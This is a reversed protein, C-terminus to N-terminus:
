PKAKQIKVLLGDIANPLQSTLVWDGTKLESTKIIIFQKKHPQIIDGVRKIKVMKLHKAKIQYIHNNGYLASIPLQITNPIPNLSLTVVVTKGLALHQTHQKVIFLAEEGAQGSQVQPSLHRLKLPFRQQQWYATASVTNKNNNLLNRILPIYRSPITARIELNKTSLINLIAKNPQLRDGKAVLLKTIVGDFPAKITTYGLHIKAQGLLAETRKLRANLQTLLHQHNRISNTRAVVILRQRGLDRNAKDLTTQAVYKNRVLKRQRERERLTLEVIKKEHELAKKDTEFKIKQTEIQAKLDNVEAERQAVTYKQTGDSLQVLLQGKKVIKGERVLTKKVNASIASTMKAFQPSEVVGYLLLSPTNNTVIIQQAQVPWARVKIPTYEARKPLALLLIFIFLAVLLIGLPLAVKRREKLYGLCAILKNIM